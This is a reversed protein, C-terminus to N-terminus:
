FYISADFKTLCPVLAQLTVSAESLANGIRIFFEEGEDVINVLKLACM